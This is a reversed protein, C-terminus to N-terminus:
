FYLRTVNDFVPWFYIFTSWKGPVQETVSGMRLLVHGNEEELVAGADNLIDLIKSLVQRALM